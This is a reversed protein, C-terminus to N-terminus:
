SPQRRGATTHCQGVNTNNFLCHKMSANGARSACLFVQIVYILTSVHVRWCRILAKTHTVVLEQASTGSDQTMHLVTFGGLHSVSTLQQTVDVKMRTQLCESTGCELVM